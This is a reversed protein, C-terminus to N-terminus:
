LRASHVKDCRLTGDISVFFKCDGVIAITYRSNGNNRKCYDCALLKGQQVLECGTCHKRYSGAPLGDKPHEFEDTYDGDAEANPEPHPTDDAIPPDVLPNDEENPKDETKKNDEYEDYEDKNDKDKNEEKDKTDELDKELDKVDDLEKTVEPDEPNDAKKEEEPDPDPPPTIPDPQKTDEDAIPAPAPKTERKTCALRGRANEIRTCYTIDLESSIYAGTDSQCQECQLVTPSKM